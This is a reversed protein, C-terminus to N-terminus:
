GLELHRDRLVSLIVNKEYHSLQNAIDELDYSEYSNYAAIVYEKNTKSEGHHFYTPKSEVFPHSSYIPIVPTWLLDDDPSKSEDVEIGFREMVQAVVQLLIENKPHNISNFLRRSKWYESIYDAIHIDLDDERRKLAQITSASTQEVMEKTYFFDGQMLAVAYEVSKRMVFAKLINYDHYPSFHPIAATGNLRFYFSEPTYGDFWISPISIKECGTKLFSMLTETNFQDYNVVPQYIFVDTDHLIIHLQELHNPRLVHIPPFDPALVTFYKTFEPQALFLKILPNKQCNAYVFFTKKM